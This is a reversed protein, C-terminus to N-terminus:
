ISHGSRLISNAAPSTKETQTHMVLPPCITLPKASGLVGRIIVRKAVTNAKSLIPILQIDGLKKSLVQLFEPLCEPRHILTLTGKSKVHKLCYELWKKLDFDATYALAQEENQRTKGTTDYFPPNTVVHNFLQGKLPDKAQFIDNRIVTIKRDNLLANEQILSVLDEQIELATLKIPVRASVCLGIVGNGAGVDLISENPKARVAAAVLVSDSTARLGHIKQKLKIKGGLFADTSHM